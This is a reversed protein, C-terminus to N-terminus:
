SSIRFGILFIETEWIFIIFTKKIKDEKKNAAVVNANFILFLITAKTKM